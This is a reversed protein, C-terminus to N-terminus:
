LGGQSERARGVSGRGGCGAGVNTVIALAGGRSPIALSISKIQTPHIRFYKQPHSQVPPIVNIGFSIKGGDRRPMAFRHARFGYGRDPITSSATGSPVAGAHYHGSAM